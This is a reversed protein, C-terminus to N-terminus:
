RRPAPYEEDSESDDSDSVVYDRRNRSRGRPLHHIHHVTPTENVAGPPAVPVGPVVGAPMVSSSTAAGPYTHTHHHMPSSVVSCSFVVPFKM